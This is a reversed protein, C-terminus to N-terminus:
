ADTQSTPLTDEFHDHQDGVLIADRINTCDRMTMRLAINNGPGLQNMLWGVCYTQEEADHEHCSMAHLPADGLLSALENDSAITKSLVQHKEVSYGRPITHPDTSVKWPCKACQTTRKLTFDM